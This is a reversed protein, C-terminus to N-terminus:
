GRARFALLYQSARFGQGPDAEPLPAAAKARATTKRAKAQEPLLGALAPQSAMLGQLDAELPKVLESLSAPDIPDGDIRVEQILKQWLPRPVIQGTVDQLRHLLANLQRARTVWAAAPQGSPTAPAARGLTEDIGFTARIEETADAGLIEPADSRRLTLSGAGFVGEWHQVLRPLDLWFPPTETEFFNGKAPNIACTEALAKDWWQGAERGQELTLPRSRGEMVQAAYHRALMRAPADVHAHLRIEDGLPALLDRLRELESRRALSQGLHSASLIMARPQHTAIDRALTAALEARLGAQKAPDAHGRNFRLADVHAPDTVAMFLRTHNRAGAARPFLIGKSLMQERKDAMVTQLRATAQADLGIHLHIRTM